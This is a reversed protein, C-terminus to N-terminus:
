TSLSEPFTRRYDVSLKVAGARSYLVPITHVRAGVERFFQSTTIWEARPSGEPFRGVRDGSIVNARVEGGLHYGAIEGDKEIAAEYLALAEGYAKVRYLLSGAALQLSPLDPRLRAATRAHDAADRVRGARQAISGLLYHARANRPAKLIIAGCIETAENLQDQLSPSRTGSAFLRRQM